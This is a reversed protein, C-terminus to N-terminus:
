LRWVLLYEFVHHAERFNLKLGLIVLSVTTIKNILNYNALGTGGKERKEGVV